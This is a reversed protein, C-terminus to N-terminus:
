CSTAPPGRHPSHELLPSLFSFQVNTNYATKTDDNIEENLLTFIIAVLQVTAINKLSLNTSPAIYHELNCNEDGHETDSLTCIILDYLNTDFHDGHSIYDDTNSVDSNVHEHCHKSDSGNLVNHPMLNHAFGITYTLLFLISIVIRKLQM